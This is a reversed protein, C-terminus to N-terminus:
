RASREGEAQEIEEVIQQARSVPDDVQTIARGVVIYDSGLRIAEGPTTIRKQDHRAAWRPRIGPTVLKFDPGCAERIAKTELPSCVAGDAGQSRGLVAWNLSVDEISMGRILLDEELTRQDISTLVTMALVLPPKTGLAAAEERVARTLASFMGKGGPAHVTFMACGLKAMVRGASAVTNPIDHFKLDVFVSGGLDRIRTVMKPGVATFLEMGVKFVGVHRALKKVLTMAEEETNVDLALIVRDKAHM